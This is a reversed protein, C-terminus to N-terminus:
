IPALTHAPPRVPAPADTAVADTAVADAPAAPAAPDADLAQAPEAECATRAARVCAWLMVESGPLWPHRVDPAVLWRAATATEDGPDGPADPDEARAPQPAPPPLESRPTPRVPYLAPVTVADGTGHCLLPPVASGWEEWDLLAPLRQATGPATFLLLRGRYAAVPGSGPGDSWLRDVMRRGFLAPANVVDFATGCPLVSPATPRSSWLAHMRGPHSSASALWDAGALTVYSATLPADLRPARDPSDCLAFIDRPDPPGTHRQHRQWDNM